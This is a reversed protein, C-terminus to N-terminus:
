TLAEHVRAGCKLPAPLEMVVPEGQNLTELESTKVTDPAEFTLTATELEPRRQTGPTELRSTAIRHRRRRIVICGILCAIALLALPGVIAGAVWTKGSASGTSLIGTATEGTSVVGDDGRRSGLFAVDVDEVGGVLGGVGVRSKFYCNMWGFRMGTDWSVGACGVGVAACLDVCALLSDAHVAETDHLVYDSGCYKTFGKSVQVEASIDECDSTINPWIAVASDVIWTQTVPAPVSSKLYCYNNAAEFNM